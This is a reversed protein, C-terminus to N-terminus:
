PTPPTSSHDPQPEVAAQTTDRTLWDFWSRSKIPSTTVQFPRNPLHHLLDDPTTAGSFLKTLAPWIWVKNYANPGNKVGGFSDFLANDYYQTSTVAQNHFAVLGPDLKTNSEAFYIAKCDSAIAQFGGKGSSDLWLQPPVLTDAMGHLIVVPCNLNKGSEQITLPDATFPSDFLKLLQIAFWPIGMETSTAPDAVLLHKPQLTPQVALRSIQYPLSLSILGGLSHGFSDCSIPQSRWHAYEPRSSLDNWAADSISLATALWTKPSYALSLLVTGILQGLNRAYTRRFWGIVVLILQILLWPLLVSRLDRILLDPLGQRRQKLRSLPLSAFEEPLDEGMVAEAGARLILRRTTKLWSLKLPLPRGAAAPGLPEERYTSRQFDPFIVIWGQQVLDRLHDAYFSPLCLAFGHLYIIVRLDTGAQQASLPVYVRVYDGGRHSGRQYITAGIEPDVQQQWEDIPAAQQSNM